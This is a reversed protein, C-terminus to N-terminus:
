VPRFSTGESSELMEIAMRCTGFRFSAPDLRSRVGRISHSLLHVPYPLIVHNEQTEPANLDILSALLGGEVAV